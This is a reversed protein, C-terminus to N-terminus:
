ASKVQAKHRFVSSPIPGPVRGSPRWSPLYGGFLPLCLRPGEVTQVVLFIGAWIYNAKRDDKSSLAAIM